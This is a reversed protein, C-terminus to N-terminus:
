PSIRAMMLWFGNNMKKREGLVEIYKLITALFGM